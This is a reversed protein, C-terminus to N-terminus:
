DVRVVKTYGIICLLDAAIRVPNRRCTTQSFGIQQKKHMQVPLIFSELTPCTLCLLGKEVLGVNRALRFNAYM